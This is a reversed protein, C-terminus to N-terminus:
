PKATNSYLRSRQKKRNLRKIHYLQLPGLIPCGKIRIKGM